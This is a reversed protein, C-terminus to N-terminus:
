GWHGGWFRATFWHGAIIEEHQMADDIVEVWDKEKTHVDAVFLGTRRRDTSMVSKFLRPLHQAGLHEREGQRRLYLDDSAATSGDWKVAAAVEGFFGDTSSFTAETFAMDLKSQKTFLLLQQAEVENPPDIQLRGNGHFVAGFVVGNAPKVFQITGDVLTITVRDRKIQLNQVSASRNRDMVPNTLTDWIEKPSAQPDTQALACSVISCGAFILAAIKKQM